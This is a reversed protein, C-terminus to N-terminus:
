TMDEHLSPSFDISTCVLNGTPEVNIPDSERGSLYIIAIDNSRLASLFDGLIFPKPGGGHVIIDYKKRNLKVLDSLIMCYRRVSNVTTEIIEPSHLEIFDKNVSYCKKASGIKVGPNAVICTVHSPEIWDHLSLTAIEDFGLAYIGYKENIQSGVSNFGPMLAYDEVVKLSKKGMYNGCSYSFVAEISHGEIALLNLTQLIEAYWERRMVTYDILIRIKEFNGLKTRLSNRILLSTDGYKSSDGNIFTFNNKTFTKDNLKRDFKDKYDDFYFCIKSTNIYPLTKYIKNLLHRSRREYGSAFLYLDYVNSTVDDLQIDSIDFNSTIM